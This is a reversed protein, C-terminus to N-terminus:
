VKVSTLMTNTASSIRPPTRTSAGITSRRVPRLIRHNEHTARPSDSAARTMAQSDLPSVRM